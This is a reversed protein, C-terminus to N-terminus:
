TVFFLTLGPDGTIQGTTHKTKLFSHMALVLFLGCSRQARWGEQFGPRKLIYYSVDKIIIRELHQPFYAHGKKQKATGNPM